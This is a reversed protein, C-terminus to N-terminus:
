KYIRGELNDSINKLIITKVQMRHSASLDLSETELPFKEVRGKM